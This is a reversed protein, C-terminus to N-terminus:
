PIARRRPRFTSWGRLRALVTVTSHHVPDADIEQLDLAQLPGDGPTRAQGLAQEGAALAGVRLAAGTGGHVQGGAEAGLLRHGLRQREVHQAPLLDLDHALAPRRADAQV